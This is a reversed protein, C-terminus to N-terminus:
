PALREAFSALPTANGSRGVDRLYDGNPLQLGPHDFPAREYKVRDDTLSEMFAVLAARDGPALVIDDMDLHLTPSDFDGGRAYFDMVQELTALGGTRMYPGTLAVNRLGPTKFTGEVSVPLGLMFEIPSQACGGGPLLVADGPCLEHRAIDPDIVVGTSAQVAHSLSVGGGGIAAVGPDEAIPRVGINYFGEDYLASGTRTPMYAVEGRGQLYRVSAATFEPGAHCSVCKGNTLFVQFGHIQQASLTSQGEAWRDFPTQDSVLTSEYLQIALGFFLSFNAEMQTAQEGFADVRNTANWLHPQFAARVMAPYTTDLGYGTYHRMAGLVSDQSHVRQAALPRLSLMKRGLRVFSRGRWSMEVANNPPGVAQSALSANDLLVQAPEARCAGNACVTAFVRADGSRPGTNDVGNFFPSARGDWFNRYNFVANVVSPANRGTVQRANYRGDANSAGAPTAHFVPDPLVGGDDSQRREVIDEFANLVVGQSGVVDDRGTGYPAPSFPFDSAALPEMPLCADFTEDPGPHTTNTTRVDAGAQYHCSACATKGDGGLQADWFLAKGLAIAATRNRVYTALSTPEPVGGDAQVALRLSGPLQLPELGEAEEEEEPELDPPLAAIVEDFTALAARSQAVPSESAPACAASVLMTFLLLTNRM